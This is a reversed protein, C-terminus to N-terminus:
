HFLAAKRWLLGIFANGKIIALLIGHIYIKKALLSFYLAKCVPFVKKGKPRFHRLGSKFM